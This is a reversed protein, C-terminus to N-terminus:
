PKWMKQVKVGLFWRVEVFGSTLAVACSSDAKVYIKTKARLKARM